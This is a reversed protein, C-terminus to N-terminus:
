VVFLIVFIVKILCFLANIRNKRVSEDCWFGSIVIRPSTSQQEDDGLGWFLTKYIRRRARIRVAHFLPPAFRPLSDCFPPNRPKKCLIRILNPWFDSDCPPRGFLFVFFILFFEFYFFRPNEISQSHKEHSKLIKKFNNELFRKVKESISCMSHPSELQSCIM